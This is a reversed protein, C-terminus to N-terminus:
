QGPGYGASLIYTINAPLYLFTDGGETVQVLRYNGPINMSGGLSETRDIVKTGDDWVEARVFAGADSVTWQARQIRLNGAHYEIWVSVGPISCTLEIAKAM